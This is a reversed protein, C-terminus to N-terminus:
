GEPLREGPSCWGTLWDMGVLVNDEQEDGLDARMRELHALLESAATGRDLEETLVRRLEALPEGSGLAARVRSEFDAM